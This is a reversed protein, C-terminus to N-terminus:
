EKWVLIWLEVNEVGANGVDWDQGGYNEVVCVDSWIWIKEDEVDGVISKRVSSFAIVSAEVNWM